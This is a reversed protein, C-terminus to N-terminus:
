IIHEEYENESNSKYNGKDRRYIDDFLPIKVPIPMERYSATLIAEGRSM